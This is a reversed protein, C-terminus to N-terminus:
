YFNGYFRVKSTAAGVVATKGNAFNNVMDSFKYDIGYEGKKNERAIVQFADM